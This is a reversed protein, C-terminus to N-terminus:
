REVRHIRAPDASAPLRIPFSPLSKSVPRKESASQQMTNKWPLGKSIDAGYWFYADSSHNVHDLILNLAEVGTTM